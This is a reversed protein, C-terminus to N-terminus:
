YHQKSCWERVNEASLGASPLAPTKIHQKPYWERVNEASLSKGAWKTHKKRM